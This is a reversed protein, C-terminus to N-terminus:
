RNWFSTRVPKPVLLTSWQVRSQWAEETAASISPMPEPATVAGNMPPARRRRRDDDDAGVRGLVVRDGRGEDLVGGLAAGLQDDHIRAALRQRAVGGDDSRKLGPVRRPAASRAHQVRDDVSPRSRRATCRLSCPLSRPASPASRRVERGLRHRRDAADGASVCGRGDRADVRAGLAEIMKQPMPMECCTCPVSLARQRIASASIVPWTPRGPVPGADAARGSCRAPRRRRRGSGSPRDRSGAPRSHRCGRGTRSARPCLREIRLAAQGHDLDHVRDVGALDLAHVDHALVRRHRVGVQVMRALRQGLELMEDHLVDEQGLRRQVGVHHQRGGGERLLGAGEGVGVAPHLEAARRQRQGALRPLIEHIM